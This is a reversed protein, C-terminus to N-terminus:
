YMTQFTEHILESETSPAQCRALSSMVCCSLSVTLSLDCSENISRLRNLMLTKRTAPGMMAQIVQRAIIPVPVVLLHGAGRLRHLKVTAQVKFIVSIGSLISHYRRPFARHFTSHTVERPLQQTQSLALAM